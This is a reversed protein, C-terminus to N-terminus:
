ATLLPSVPALGAAGDLAETELGMWCGGMKREMAVWRTGVMLMERPLLRRVQRGAVSGSM